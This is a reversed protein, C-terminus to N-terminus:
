SRRVSQRMRRVRGLRARHMIIITIPSTDEQRVLTRKGIDRRIEVFIRCERNEHIGYYMKKNPLPKTMIRYEANELDTRIM